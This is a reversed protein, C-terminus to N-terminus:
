LHNALRKSLALLTFSPNSNGFVPLISSDCIYANNIDFIKLNQDVVGKSKSNSIEHAVTIIEM